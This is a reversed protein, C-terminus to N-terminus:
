SRALLKHIMEEDRYDVGYSCYFGDAGIADSVAFFDEKEGVLWIRKGADRIKRYVDLWHMPGPKGAGYVWQVAKLDPLSLVSDLHTLEGIGDLHYIVNTLRETDRRLTPLVFRNFMDNGIMYCFDCQAIYSPDPSLIGSWDTWGMDGGEPHLIKSFDDYAAYWATEIEGILRLVEEPEDYLDM